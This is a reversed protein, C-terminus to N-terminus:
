QFHDLLLYYARLILNLAPRIARAKKPLLYYTIPLLYLARYKPSLHLTYPTLSLTLCGGSAEAM